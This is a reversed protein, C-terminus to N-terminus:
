ASRCFQDFVKLGEQMFQEVEDPKIKKNFRYIVLQDDGGEVGIKQQSEFFTLLENNFLVRIEPEDNGRLLYTQSFQPHTEFDIDQYGFVGGIKHFVNEPRLAFQPLNLKASRFYIVNQIAIGSKEGSGWEFSYDFVALEVGNTEGHLMNSIDKSHGQSFLYFQNLGDIISDDGEPFFLFNLKEAVVTLQKTREKEEKLGVWIVVISSLVMTMVLIISGIPKPLLFTSLLGALLVLLGGIILVVTSSKM